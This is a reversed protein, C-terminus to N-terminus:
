PCGAAYSQLFCTFDQVNLVPAVTSEDCNAYSEGAADRQLFCTFDQVNLVPATTSGDCNPYCGPPLARRVDWNDFDANGFTGIGFNTGFAPSYALVGSRTYTQDAVGNFDTDFEVKVTDGADIISVTMRASAFPATLAFFAATTGWATAGNFGGYFGIQGFSGSGQVKIYLNGTAGGAPVGSMLAVYTLSPDTAFVDVAMIADAYPLDASAHRMWQNGAGSLSRGHNAEIRYDGVQESWNIGMDTGDARNFDDSWQGMAASAVGLVGACSVLRFINM